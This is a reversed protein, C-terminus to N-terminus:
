IIKDKYCDMEEKATSNILSFQLVSHTHSHQAIQLFKQVFQINGAVNLIVLNMLPMWLKRQILNWINFWRRQWLRWNHLLEHCRFVHKVFHFVFVYVGLNFM